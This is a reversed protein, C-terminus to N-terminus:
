PWDRLAGVISTIAGLIAAAATFLAAKKNLLAAAKTAEIMGNANNIATTLHSTLDDEMSSTPYALEPMSLTSARLWFWAAPSAFGLTILSLAIVSIFHCSM